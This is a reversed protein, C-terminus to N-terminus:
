EGAQYIDPLKPFAANSSDKSCEQTSDYSVYGLM